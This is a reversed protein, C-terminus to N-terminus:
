PYRMHMQLSVGRAPVTFAAASFAPPGLVLTPNNSFAYGEDPLGIMTRTFRRDGDEDHYAAVAYTGEKPLVVCGRVTGVSAPLRVKALKKGKALFDDPRDGYVSLTITGSDSRVGDITLDLRVGDSEAACQQEGTPASPGAGQAAHSAPIATLMLVTSIIVSSASIARMPGIVIKNYYSLRARWFARTVIPMRDCRSTTECSPKGERRCQIDQKM